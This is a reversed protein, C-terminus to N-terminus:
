RSRIALAVNGWPRQSAALAACKIPDISLKLENHPRLPESLVFEMRDIDAALQGLLQDNLWVSSLGPVDELRLVVYEHEPDTSPCGFRRVLRIPGSLGVPWATPLAIRRFTESGADSGHWEWGGRLRIQHESGM